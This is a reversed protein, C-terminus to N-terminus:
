SNTVHVMCQVKQGKSSSAPETKISSQVDTKFAAWIAEEKAKKAEEEEEEEEKKKASLAETEEESYETASDSEEDLEEEESDLKIGGKRKRFSM